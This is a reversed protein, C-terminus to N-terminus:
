YKPYPLYVDDGKVHKRFEEDSWTLEFVAEESDDALFDLLDSQGDEMVERLYDVIAKLEAKEHRKEKM